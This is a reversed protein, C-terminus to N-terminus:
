AGNGQTHGKERQRFKLITEEWAQELLPAIREWDYREEVLRRAKTTLSQVLSNDNLLRIACGAFEDENRAILIHEGAVVELGEAGEPTSVVPLGAAMAELIKIRSGAAVRIPVICVSSRSLYPRVDDVTGTLTVQESAYKRLSSPPDKGLFMVKVGSDRELIRPFISEMFYVAADQNVFADLSASFVLSKKALDPLAFNYYGVDVGNPILTVSKCGYLDRFKARDDESVAAIHDFKGCVEKEFRLMKQWELYLFPRKIRNEEHEYLREWPMAEINHSCLFRPYSPLERVYAGYHTWECHVLDFREERVLRCMTALYDKRFHKRMVLPAPSVLNTLALFYLRYSPDFPNKRPLTVLRIGSSEIQKRAVEEGSPDAFCLYTIKHNRAARTLLYYSRLKKGSVLPYPIWEDLVLIKM